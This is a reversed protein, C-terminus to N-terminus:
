KKCFFQNNLCLKPVLFRSVDTLTAYVASM